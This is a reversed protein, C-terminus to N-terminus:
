RGGTGEMLLDDVLGGVEEVAMRGARVELAIREWAQLREEVSAAPDAVAGRPDPVGGGMAVMAVVGMVGGWCSLRRMCVEMCCRRLVAGDSGIGCRGVGGVVGTM